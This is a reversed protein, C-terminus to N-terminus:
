RKKGLRIIKNRIKSPVLALVAIAACTSLSIILGKEAYSQGTFYLTMKFQGTKTISYSNVLSYARTSSFEQGDVIAKWLPNYAESFVLTFPESANVNVEYMCPNVNKFELSVKPTALDFLESLSLYHEEDKLSYLLIEDLEVPGVGGISICQEGADLSIPGMERWEFQSTSGNCYVSHMSGSIDFCLTGNGPGIGVRTALMYRGKQPVVIKAPSSTAQLALAELEWISVRSYGSFATVYIRLKNTEVVNPFVLVNELATNNTATAQNIWCTGNWTQIVYDKAYANEFLIRAGAIKQPKEWTLELWQPLVYKESAWRTSLNGDIAQRAERFDSTSSADATALPSVNLGLTNSRIIYGNYPIPTWSWTNDSANLFNDTSQLLYMTRGHFQQLSSVTKNIQTELDAPNVIALADVDNCGTGDNEM